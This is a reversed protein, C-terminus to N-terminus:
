RRDIISYLLKYQKLLFVKSFLWKSISYHMKMSKCASIYIDDNRIKKCTLLYEDYGRYDIENKLCVYIFSVKQLILARNERSDGEKILMKDLLIHVNKVTDYLQERYSSQISNESRILYNYGIHKIYYVSSAHDFALLAFAGDENFKYRRDFCISNDKILKGRYLKNGICSIMEGSVENLFYNIIDDHSYQGEDINASVITTKNGKVKCFDCLVIDANNKISKEVLIEITRNDITDDSDLFFIWNGSASNVGDNRTAELGLNESHDILIVKKDRAAIEKCIQLSNDKSGDNVLIIEIDKYTQNIISRYCNEIYQESNFVPVIISVTKNM